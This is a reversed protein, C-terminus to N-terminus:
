GHSGFKLLPAHQFKCTSNIGQAFRIPIIFSASFSRLSTRLTLQIIRGFAFSLSVWIESAFRASIQLDFQDGSCLSHPHHFESLAFPSKFSTFFSIIINEGMQGGGNFDLQIYYGSYARNLCFIRISMNLASM